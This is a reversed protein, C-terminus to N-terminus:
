FGRARLAGPLKAAARQQLPEVGGAAMASLWEQVHREDTDTRRALEGATVSEGDAM